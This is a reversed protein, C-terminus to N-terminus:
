EPTELNLKQNERVIRKNEKLKLVNNMFESHLKNITKYMEVCLIRLRSVSFQLKRAKELLGEYSIKYDSYLFRLARQQLSEIKNLSKATSLITARKTSFNLYCKLRILANLQKTDVRCINSM